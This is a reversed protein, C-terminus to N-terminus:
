KCSSLYRKLVGDEICHCHQSPMLFLMQRYFIGSEFIGALIGLLVKSSETVTLM